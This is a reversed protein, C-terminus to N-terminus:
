PEQSALYYWSVFSSVGLLLFITALSYQGYWQGLAVIGTSLAASLDQMCAYLAGVTGAMHPFPHFAGAFANIFTFGVGMSFFSVPIMISLVNKMGLFALCLMALGGIIMFIIGIFVMHSVGKGMVMQSNIIGSVCIAGAIFITLQGFEIPSLGLVDQFLFPAIALYALLGACAFCACLAYGLFVKSRLLTFYNDRMVRIKTAEPNLNKNTEPLTFLAFLWIVIGFLFLCLFNNRWGFHEQIYGGLVPSAVMIFVSVIGVYSGIKSLVRDTFLDRVLSRGVSGCCGIGFGQIFRGLILVFVTPALFCCLSGLISLGVGFMLPPKRGIKDSLPGYFVHSISLGLMFLSLTLQISAENTNFVKTIAPLSPVYQDTTMQMLVMLMLVVSVLLPQLSVQQMNNKEHM